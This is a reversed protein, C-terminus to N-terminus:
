RKRRGTKVENWCQAHDLADWLNIDRMLNSLDINEGLTMESDQDFKKFQEAVEALKALMHRQAIRKSNNVTNTETNNM